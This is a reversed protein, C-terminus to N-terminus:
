KSLERCYMWKIVMSPTWDNDDMFGYEKTYECVHHYGRETKVLIEIEEEPYDNEKIWHWKPVDEYKVLWGSKDEYVRDPDCNYRKM